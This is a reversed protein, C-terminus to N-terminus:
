METEFGTVFFKNVYCSISYSTLYFCPEKKRSCVKYDLRLKLINCPEIDYLSINEARKLAIINLNIICIGIENNQEIRKTKHHVLLYALTSFKGKIKLHIQM